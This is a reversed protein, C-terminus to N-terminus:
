DGDLNKAILGVAGSLALWTFAFSVVGPWDVVLAWTLAVLGSIWFGACWPCTIFEGWKVRYGDPTDEGQKWGSLGLAWSRPRDLITDEGVLRYLRFAVLALVVFEFWGPLNV